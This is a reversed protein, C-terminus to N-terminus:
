RENQPIGSLQIENDPIPLTYRPDNPPLTYTVGNITRSITIAFRSEKNLRRLDTWRLGRYLLEKRREKLIQKLADDASTATYDVFTGTRWRTKLLTNLDAMAAAQNDARAYCEARILYIEDTALGSFKNSGIYDYSGIFRPNQTMNSIIALLKTKRLDNDDYTAYLAPDIYSTTRAAFMAYATLASHFIDEKIFSTNVGSSTPTTLTNYDTLTHNLLLSADAYKLALPYNRIALYIRALLANASVQSPQTQNSVQAPLLPLATMLDSIIQDYCTQVSARTSKINLDSSLRLPIGLDTSATAADYPKAFIQMLSNFAYSRFFLATGRVQDYLAQQNSNYAIHPLADLVVNANYVKIYPKSWDQVDAGVDYIQKSWIYINRELSSLNNWTTSLIYIDDASMEGISPEYLNFVGQNLLLLQLDSLSSLTALAADPKTALFEDQKKCSSHFVLLIGVLLTVFYRTDNKKM